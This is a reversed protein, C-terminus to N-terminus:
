IKMCSSCILGNPWIKVNKTLNPWKLRFKRFYSVLLALITTKPFIAMCQINAVLSRGIELLYFYGCNQRGWYSIKIRFHSNFDFHLFHLFLNKSLFSRKSRFHLSRWTSFSWIVQFLNFNQGRFPWAGTTQNCIPGISGVPHCSCESLMKVLLSIKRSWFIDYFHCIVSHCFTM